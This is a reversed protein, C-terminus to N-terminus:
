LTQRYRWGPQNFWPIAPGTDAHIPVLVENVKYPKNLTDLPLTRREFYM